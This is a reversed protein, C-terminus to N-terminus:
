GLNEFFKNEINKAANFDANDENGCKVCKFKDQTKRNDNSIHGCNNCMKSTNKPDVQELNKGYWETKYAMQRIIEYYGTNLMTKTRAKHAKKNSVFKPKDGKGGKFDAYDENFKKKKEDNYKSAMDKVNLKEFIYTDVGDLNVLTSTINHRINNNINRLKTYLKGQEDKLRQYTKSEKWNENKIRKNALKINIIQLKEETDKYHKFDKKFLPIDYHEEWSTTIPRVNGLDIGISTEKKIEKKKMGVREEVVSFSVYYEGSGNKSITCSNIKIKGKKHDNIFNGRHIKFLLHGMPAKSSSPLKILYWKHKEHIINLQGQIQCTYSHKENKKSKFKPFGSGEKIMKKFASELSKLTYTIGSSPFKNLNSWKEYDTVKKMERVRKYSNYHNFYFGHNDKRWQKIKLKLEEKSLEGKKDLNEALYDSIRKQEGLFFNYIYNSYMINDGIIKKQHETPYVRFKYALNTKM